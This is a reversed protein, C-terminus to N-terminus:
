RFIPELISRKRQFEPRFGTRERLRWYFVLHKCFQASWTFPINEMLRQFTPLSADLHSTRYSYDLERLGFYHRIINSIKLVFRKTKSLSGELGAADTGLLSTLVRAGLAGDIKGTETIDIPAVTDETQITPAPHDSHFSAALGGLRFLTKGKRGVVLGPMVTSDPLPVLCYGRKKIETILPDRCFGIM